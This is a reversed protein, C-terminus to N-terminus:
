LEDLLAERLEMIEALAKRDNMIRAQDAGRECNAVAEETRGLEALMLALQYYSPVHEPADKLLAQLAIVAEEMVGASKLELAIAYRIFLDKPDEELMSRLQALRDITM